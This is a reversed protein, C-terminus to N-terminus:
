LYLAAREEDKLEAASSLYMNGNRRALFATLASYELLTMIVLLIALNENLIDLKFIYNIAM